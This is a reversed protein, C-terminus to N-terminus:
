IRDHAKEKSATCIVNERQFDKVHGINDVYTVLSFLNVCVRLPFDVIDLM